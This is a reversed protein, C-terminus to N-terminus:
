LSRNRKGSPYKKAPSQKRKNLQEKKLRIFASFEELEKESWNKDVTYFDVYSPERVLGM